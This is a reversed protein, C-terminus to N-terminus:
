RLSCRRSTRTPRRSARVTDRDDLVVLTDGAKVSQDGRRAGRRRLRRGEAARARNHGDVQANDHLRALASGGNARGFIVLGLLIVGMIM